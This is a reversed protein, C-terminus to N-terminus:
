RRELTAADDNSGELAPRLPPAHARDGVLGCVELLRQALRSPARLMLARSESRLATSGRALEAIIASDMFQVESLDVVVDDDGAASATALADAVGLATSMDQEGHLSVVMRDGERRVDPLPGVERAIENWSATRAAAM